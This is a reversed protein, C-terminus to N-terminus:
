DCHPQDYTNELLVILEVLICSISWDSRPLLQIVELREVEKFRLPFRHMKQLIVVYCRRFFAIGKRIKPWQTLNAVYKPLGIKYNHTNWQIMHDHLLEPGHWVRALLWSWSITLAWVFTDLPQGLAGGFDHKQTVSVGLTTHLWIHGPGWGFAIEIFIQEHPDERVCTLIFYIDTTSTRLAMSEQNQTLGVELFHNWFITWNVMFCSGNLVMYSDIYVKCGDQMWMIWRDRLRLTFCVQVPEAKEVLSLAQLTITGPEWDRTHLPGKSRENM